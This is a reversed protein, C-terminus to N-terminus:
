KYNFAGGQPPAEFPNVPSTNAAAPQSSPFDAGAAAAVPAAPPPAMAPATASQQPVPPPQSYAQTAARSQPQAMTSGGGWQEEDQMQHYAASNDEEPIARVGCLYLVGINLLGVFCTWLGIFYGAVYSGCLLVGLLIYFFGRGPKYLLFLTWMMHKRKLMQSEAVLLLICGFIVFGYMLHWNLEADKPTDDDSGLGVAKFGADLVEFTRQKATRVAAHFSLAASSETPPAPSPASPGHIDFVFGPAIERWVCYAIVGVCTVAGIIRVATDITKQTTWFTKGM